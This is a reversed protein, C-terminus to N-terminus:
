GGPSATGTESVVLLGGAVLFGGIVAPVQPHCAAAGASCCMVPAAACLLQERARRAPLRGTAAATEILHWADAGPGTLAKSGARSRKARTPSGPPGGWSLRKLM